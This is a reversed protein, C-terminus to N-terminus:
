EFLGEASDIDGIRFDISRVRDLQSNSIEPMNNEVITPRIFLMLNTKRSEEYTSRFLAGIVPLDGLVPVKVVGTSSAERILGGLPAVLGDKVFVTNTIARKSTTVGGSTATGKSDEVTLNVELRVTGDNQIQPKVKLETGIDKQEFTTFPNDNDGDTRTPVPVTEGVSLVAEMNNVTMTSPTSLLNSSTESALAQLFTGWVGIQDGDFSLEGGVVGSIGSPIVETASLPNTGIANVLPAIGVQGSQSVQQVLAPVSIGGSVDTPIMGWQVGLRNDDSITFEVIAAEIMVQSRKIDLQNIISRVEEIVAPEGRVILANLDTDALITVDSVTPAGDAANEEAVQGAIGSLTEAMAEANAHNLFIVQSSSLSPAPKDLEAIMEKVREIATTEGKLIIRNGREDAVLRINGVGQRTGTQVEEPNLQELLQIVNGVWAEKLEVVAIEQDGTLDIAEIIEVLRDVNDRHDHIILSNTNQIVSLHGYRAVFPRLVAVLENAATNKIEVIRTVVEGRPGDDLGIGRNDEVASDLMKADASVTIRTIGNGDDIATFGNIQLVALFMEYIEDPTKMEDSLITARGNVKQDVIFTKGTIERVQDILVRIEQDRFTWNYTPEEAKALAPFSVSVMVALAILIRKM